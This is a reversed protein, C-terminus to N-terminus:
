GRASDLLANLSTVEATDDRGPAKIAVPAGFKTLDITYTVRFLNDSDIEQPIRLVVRRPLGDADLWVEADHYVSGKVDDSKFAKDAAQRVKDPLRSFAKGRDVNMRYHTTPLGNVTTPGLRRVSGSLAGALLRLLYTPNIPNVGTVGGLTNTDKRGVKAFDLKSWSRVGFQSEAQGAAQPRRLYVVSGMFVAPSINGLPAVAAARNTFDLEVAVSPVNFSRAVVASNFGGRARRVSVAMSMTGHGTGVREVRKAAGVVTDAQHKRAEFSCASWAVLSAMALVSAARSPSVRGVGRRPRGPARM